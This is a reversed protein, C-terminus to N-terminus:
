LIQFYDSLSVINVFVAMFLHSGQWQQLIIKISPEDLVDTMDLNTGYYNM